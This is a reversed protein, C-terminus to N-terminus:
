CSGVLGAQEVMEQLVSGALAERTALDAGGGLGLLGRVVRPGARRWFRRLVVVEREEQADLYVSEPREVGPFLVDWMGFWSEREDEEEGVGGDWGCRRRGRRM